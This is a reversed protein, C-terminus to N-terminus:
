IWRSIVAHLQERDVPKSIYDDMGAALCKERDGPMTHATMAIIPISRATGNELGRISATAEFGDMEPMQCDMLVLFYREQGDKLAEVAEQGNLVAHAKYGMKKLLLLTLKQNATNDEALLIMKGGGPPAPGTEPVTRSHGGETKRGGEIMVSTEPARELNVTFWFTSGRGEESHVGIRGGMLEVLRKSISLGLGTGGYKRTTSGDVQVFPRFLQERSKEPIGIGTDTIEFRISARLDDEEELVAQLVVEGHDTFKVANGALNLLVQRVRGPDGRLGPIAPDVFTHLSLGKEFARWAIQRATGEVLPGLEFYINELTLKGAEVKSFDLIDNVIILLSKASDSVTCALDRQDPHLKTDLLLDTMGMIANMPTRIEHSMNALFESKARNAAEADEKSAAFRAAYSRQIRSAVFFVIVSLSIFLTIIISNLRSENIISKWEGADIDMGMVALAKNAAPDRIITHGSIWTGWQDTVPGEVFPIGTLFIEMLKPSSEVYAEGPPSYDGSEEPESDVLFFIEGDRQGMLYLFRTDDNAARISMLQSRLRVYDPKGLDGPSGTLSAVRQPNLSSAANLTRKLLDKRFGADSKMGAHETMFWGALVVALVSVIAALSHRARARRDYLGDYVSGCERLYILIAITATSFFIARALQVSFEPAHFFLRSFRFEPFPVWPAAICSAGYLLFAGGAALLCRRLIKERSKSAQFLVFFAWAGGGFGLVYQSVLSIGAWGNLGGLGTLAVLPLLVWRGPSKGLVGATGSRGFEVLLLFSVSMLIIRGASFSPSDGLTLAILDLWVKIGLTLGFSGLWAWPLGRGDSSRFALCMIAMTILALGNSFLLYDVQRELFGIM